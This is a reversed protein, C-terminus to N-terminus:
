ENVFDLFAFCFSTTTTFDRFAASSSPLYVVIRYKTSLKYKNASHVQYITNRGTCIFDKMLFSSMMM